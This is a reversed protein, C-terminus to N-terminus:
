GSEAPMPPLAIGTATRPNTERAAGAVTFTVFAFTSAILERMDFCRGNGTM